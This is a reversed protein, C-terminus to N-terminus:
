KKRKWIFTYFIKNIRNIDDISLGISQIVNIFLSLGFVKLILIKGIITLPRRSWLACIRELSKIKGETNEPILRADM